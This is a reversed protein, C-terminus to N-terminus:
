ICTGSSGIARVGVFLQLLLLPPTTVSATMAIAVFPDYSHWYEMPLYPGGPWPSKRSALIHTYEPFWLSEFGREEASRALDDPRIAYDIPFM